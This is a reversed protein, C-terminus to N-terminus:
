GGNKSPDDDGNAAVPVLPVVPLAGGARVCCPRSELQALRGDQQNDKAERGAQWRKLAHRTGLFATGLTGGITIAEKILDYLQADM